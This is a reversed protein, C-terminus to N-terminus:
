DGESHKRKASDSRRALSPPLHEQIEERLVHIKEEAAQEIKQIKEPDAEEIKRSLYREAFYFGVIGLAILAVVVVLLVLSLDHVDGIVTNIATHFFYGVGALTLVWVSCSAFSLALFRTYPMQGVGYFVCVAWRLGYTYKSVFISLPGFTRTLREIRPRAARYFRYRSVGSRAGRGCLYAANDSVVGGAAGAAFVLWFSYEGFAHGRALVGALLLTLDGEVMTMFFIAWPGFRGVLEYFFDLNM